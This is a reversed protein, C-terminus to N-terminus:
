YAKIMVTPLPVCAAAGATVSAMVNLSDTEKRNTRAPRWWRYHTESCASWRETEKVARNLPRKRKQDPRGQRHYLSLSPGQSLHELTIPNAARLPWFPCPLRRFEPARMHATLGAGMCLELEGCGFVACQVLMLTESNQPSEGCMFKSCMFERERERQM